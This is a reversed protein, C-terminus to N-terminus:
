HVQGSWTSQFTMGLLRLVILYLTNFQLFVTSRDFLSSSGRQKSSGTQAERPNGTDATPNFSRRNLYHLRKAQCKGGGKGGRKKGRGEFKREKKCNFISTPVQVHNITQIIFTNIFILQHIYQFYHM